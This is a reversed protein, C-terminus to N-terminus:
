APAYSNREVTSPSGNRTVNARRLRKAVKLRAISKLLFKLQLKGPDAPTYKPGALEGVVVNTVGSNRTGTAAKTCSQANATGAATVSVRVSPQNQPCRFM